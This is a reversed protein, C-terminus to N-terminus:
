KHPVTYAREGKIPITTFFRAGTAPKNETPKGDANEKNAKVDVISDPLYKFPEAEQRFMNNKVAEGFVDFTETPFQKEGNERGDVFDPMFINLMTFTMLRKHSINTIAETARVKVGIPTEQSNVIKFLEEIAFNVRGNYETANFIKTTRSAEDIKRRQVKKRERNLFGLDGVHTKNQELHKQMTRLPMNWDLDLLKGILNHLHEYYEDSQRM